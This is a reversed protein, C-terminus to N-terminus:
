GFRCLGEFAHGPFQRGSPELDLQTSVWSPNFNYPLTVSFSKLVFLQCFPKWKCHARAPTMAKGETCVCDYGHTDYPKRWSESSVTICHVWPHGAGQTEIDIVLGRIVTLPQIRVSLLFFGWVWGTSYKRSSEGQPSERPIAGQCTLFKRLRGYESWLLWDRTGQSSEQVM